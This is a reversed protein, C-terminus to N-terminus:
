ATFSKTRALPTLLSHDVAELPDREPHVLVIAAPHRLDPALREQGPRRFLRVDRKRSVADDAPEVVVLAALVVEEYAELPVSADDDEIAARPLREGLVDALVIGDREIDRAVVRVPELCQRVHEETVVHGLLVVGGVGVLM